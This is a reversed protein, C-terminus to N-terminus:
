FIFVSKKYSLIGILLMIQWPIDLHLQAMADLVCLTASQPAYGAYSGLMGWNGLHITVSPSHFVSIKTM